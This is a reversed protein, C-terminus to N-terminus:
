SRPGGAKLKTITFARGNSSASQQKVYYKRAELLENLSRYTVTRGSISLSVPQGIWSLIAEDIAAIIAACDAM